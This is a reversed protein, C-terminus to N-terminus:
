YSSLRRRLAFASVVGLGMLVLGSPEPVGAGFGDSVVLTAGPDTALFGPDISAFPDITITNPSYQEDSNVDASITIPYFVNKEMWATTSFTVSADEGIPLIQYTIHGQSSQNWLYYSTDQPTGLGFISMADAQGASGITITAPAPGGHGYNSPTNALNQSYTGKIDIKAYSASGGTVEIYYTLTASAASGWNDSTAQVTLMPDPGATVTSMASASGGSGSVSSGDTVMSNSSSLNGSQNYSVYDAQVPGSTGGYMTYTAVPGALAPSAAASLILTGVFGSLTTRNMM